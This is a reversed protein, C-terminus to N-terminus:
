LGTWHPVIIKKFLEPDLFFRLLLFVVFTNLSQAPKLPASRAHRLSGAWNLVENKRYLGGLCAQKPSLNEPKGVGCLIFNKEYVIGFSATIANVTHAPNAASLLAKRQWASM